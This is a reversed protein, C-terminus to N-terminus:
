KDIRIQGNFSLFACLTQTNEELQARLTCIHEKASTLEQKLLIIENMCNNLAFSKQELQSRLLAIETAYSNSCAISLDGAVDPLIYDFEIPLSKGSISDSGKPTELIVLENNVSRSTVREPIITNETSQNQKISKQKLAAFHLGSTAVRLNETIHPIVNDSDPLIASLDSPADTREVNPIVTDPLIAPSDVCDEEASFNAKFSFSNLDNINITVGYTESTRGNSSSLSPRMYYDHDLLSSNIIVTQTCYDHDHASHNWILKQNM